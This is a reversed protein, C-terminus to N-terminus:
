HFDILSYSKVEHFTQVKEVISEIEFDNLEGVRFAKSKPFVLLLYYMESSSEQKNFM